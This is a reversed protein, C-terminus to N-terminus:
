ADATADPNQGGKILPDLGDTEVISIGNRICYRIVQSKDLDYTECVDELRRLTDGEIRAQIREEPM